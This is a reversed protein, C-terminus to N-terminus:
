QAEWEKDARIAAAAARNVAEHKSPLATAMGGIPAAGRKLCVAVLRKFINALFDTSKIDVGFRDPWVSTPDTM